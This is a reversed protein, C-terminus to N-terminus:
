GSVRSAPHVRMQDGKRAVFLYYNFIHGKRLMITREICMARDTLMKAYESCTFQHPHLLDAPALQFLRRVRGSKHADVSLLLYGGPRLLEVLRDLSRHLDAVHNIANLCFIADYSRGPSFSEITEGLFRTNPYDAPNFHPFAAAYREILPDLADVTYGDALITFIGAPGCGADLVTAGAPLKLASKQLFDVWYAKKWRLYEVKDRGRLYRKWWRLEFFQACRWRLQM